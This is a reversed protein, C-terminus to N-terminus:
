YAAQGSRSAFRRTSPYDTATRCNHGCSLTPEAKRCNAGLCVLANLAGADNCNSPCVRRDDVSVTAQATRCGVGPCADEEPTRCPHVPCALPADATVNPSREEPSQACVGTPCLDGIAGGSLAMVLSMVPILGTMTM